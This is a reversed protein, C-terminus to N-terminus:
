RPCLVIGMGISQHNAALALCRADIVVAGAAAAPLIHAPPLKGAATIICKFLAKCHIRSWHWKRSQWIEANGSLWM